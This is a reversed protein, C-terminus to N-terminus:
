RVVDRSTADAALQSLVGTWRKCNGVIRLCHKARTLAVNLRRSDNWFGMEHCRVISLIVASAERGQFSDITHVNTVGAALLARAQAQYPTIVIVEDYSKGLRKQLKACVEVEKANVYSTGAVDCEGDVQVLEYPEVPQTSTPPAYDTQLRSDYFKRNPFDVIQPHMRHQCELFETPYGTAILREMMSRDHGHQAGTESTLAPLQKNDGAMVITHTECRLLSWVWAEMCQAAEDVIVVDFKEGNLLPGSRGSVTCCVVNAFPTQSTVPTDDPTRSPALLLSADPCHTLVQKYLNATGVNTPACCLVRGERAYTPVMSALKRTKGTGPPGHIIVVNASPTGFLVAERLKENLAVDELASLHRDFSVPSSFYRAKNGKGKAREPMVIQAARDAGAESELVDALPLAGPDSPDEETVMQEGPQEEGRREEPGQEPAQEDHGEKERQQKELKKQARKERAAQLRQQRDEDSEQRREEERKRAAREVRIDKQAEKRRAQQAAQERLAAQNTAEEVTKVPTLRVSPASAAEDRARGVAYAVKPLPVQRRMVEGKARSTVIGPEPTDIDVPHLFPDEPRAIETRMSEKAEHWLVNMLQAVAAEESEFTAPLTALPADHNRYAVACCLYREARTTTMQLVVEM